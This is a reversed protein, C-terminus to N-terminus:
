GAKANLALDRLYALGHISRSGYWSLMEGDVLSVKTRHDVKASVEALHKERFAYPESSLLVRDVQGVFDELVIEPYRVDGEIKQVQWNILKLLEAIYTGQNVAMWPDKWIIYLVRQADASALPALLDENKRFQHVLASAQNVRKFLVGLSEFLAVNDQPVQPHTVFVHPVFDRLAHYLPEENEDINVIAHTPALARIKELNVDKTGGLKAILRVKEKPHICFGTRGVIQEHLELDCLLETISPVLSVIRAEAGVVPHAVGVADRVMNGNQEISLAQAQASM